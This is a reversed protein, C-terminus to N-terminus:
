KGSMQQMVRETIAQILAEQDPSPLVAPSANTPPAITQKVDPHPAFARQQADAAAWSDRFIDNACVDCNEYEPTNRPDKIRILLSARTTDM